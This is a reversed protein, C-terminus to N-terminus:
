LPPHVFIGGLGVKPVCVRWLNSLTRLCDYNKQVFSYFANLEPPACSRNKPTWQSRTIPDLPAIDPNTASTDLIYARTTELDHVLTAIQEPRAYNCTFFQIQYVFRTPSPMGSYYNMKTEAGWVLLSRDKAVFSGLEDLTKSTGASLKDPLALVNFYSQWIFVVLLVTGFAMYRRSRVAIATPDSGRVGIMGLRAITWGAILSIAALWSLYYHPYSRGSLSSLLIEIPLALMSVLLIRNLALRHSRGQFLSERTMGVWGLIAFLSLGTPILALIGGWVSSLKDRFTSSTYTSNYFFVADIFEGFARNLYFYAALAIAVIVFGVLIFAVRLSAERLQRNLIGCVIVAITITLPIGIINPRLFFALAALIGIIVFYLLNRPNDPQRADLVLYLALALFQLPLAFEETLNGGELVLPISALWAITTLVAPGIGYHRTLIAHCLLASFYLSVFELAWIGWRSHGGLALGLADIFYIVPGKHDWIDRYPVQGALIKDGIYIFVGSDRSIEFFPLSPILVLVTLVLYLPHFWTRSVLEKIMM